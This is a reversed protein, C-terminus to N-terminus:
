FIMKVIRKIYKVKILTYKKNNLNNKLFLHQFIQYVDINEVDQRIEYIKYINRNMKNKLLKKLNNKM